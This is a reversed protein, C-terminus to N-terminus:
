HLKPTRSTSCSEPRPSVRSSTRRETHTRTKRAGDTKSPIFQIGPITKIVGATATSTETRTEKPSPNPNPMRTEFVLGRGVHSKRFASSCEGRTNLAVALLRHTEEGETPDHEVSRYTM